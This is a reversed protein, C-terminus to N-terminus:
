SSESPFHHSQTKEDERKEKKKRDTYERDVFLTPRISWGPTLNKSNSIRMKLDADFARHSLSVHHIQELEVRYVRQKKWGGSRKLGSWCDGASVFFWFCFLRKRMISSPSFKPPVTVVTQCLAPTPRIM